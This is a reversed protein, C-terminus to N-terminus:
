ITANELTPIFECSTQTVIKLFKKVLSKLIASEPRTIIKHLLKATTITKSFGHSQSFIDETCFAWNIKRIFDVNNNKRRKEESHM